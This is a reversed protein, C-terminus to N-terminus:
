DRRGFDVQVMSYDEFDVLLLRDELSTSRGVLLSVTLACQVSAMAAATYAMTGLIVEAGRRRTKGSGRYVNKLGPEGPFVVMAQGSSGGVAASVMPIGADACGRQLVLRVPITDLCDVVLDADGILDRVNDHSLFVPHKCTEVAPNVEMVRRGAVEVKRRGIDAVSSFLQRNLNSDEFCDGDILTLKGVGIRALLEVVAGGLGGVGAVAAHAGLLRFQDATSLSKQNRIYREPVVGNELACLQVQRHGCAYTESLAKEDAFMLAKYHVGAATRREIAMSKLAQILHNEGTCCPM